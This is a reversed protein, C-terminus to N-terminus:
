RSSRGCKRCVDVRYGLSPSPLRSSGHWRLSRRWPLSHAASTLRATVASSIAFDLLRHRPLCGACAPEVKMMSLQSSADDPPSATSTSFENRAAKASAQRRPGAHRDPAVARPSPHCPRRPCLFRARRALFGNPRDAARCGEIAGGAGTVLAVPRPAKAASTENDAM